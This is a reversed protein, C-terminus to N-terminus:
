VRPASGLWVLGCFRVEVMPIVYGLTKGSGTPASVCLDRSPARPSYLQRNELLIPLVAAQVAFLSEIQMERLRELTSISLKAALSSSEQYDPLAVAKSQDVIVAYRLESSIALDDLERQSPATPKVPAPFRPLSDKQTPPLEEEKGAAQEGVAHGLAESAFKAKRAAKAAKKNAKDQIAKAEELLAQQKLERRSLPEAVVLPESQLLLEASGPETSILGDLDMLSSADANMSTEGAALASRKAEKKAKRQAKRAEKDVMTTDDAQEPGPASDTMVGEEVAPLEGRKRANREDRKARKALKRQEVAAAADVSANGEGADDSGHAESDAGDASPDKDARKKAKRRELKAKLYRKKAVTKKKEPAKPVSAKADRFADEQSTRLVPKLISVPAAAAAADSAPAAGTGSDLEVESFTVARGKGKVDESAASERKRKRAAIQQQLAKLRAAQVDEASAAGSSSGNHLQSTSPADVAASAM